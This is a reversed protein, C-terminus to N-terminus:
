MRRRGSSASINLLVNRIAFVNRPATDRFYDIGIRSTKDSIKADLLQLLIFDSGNSEDRRAPELPPRKMSRRGSSVSNSDNVLYNDTM